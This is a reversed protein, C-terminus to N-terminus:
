VMELKISEIIQSLKENAEKEEVLTEHLLTAAHDEGLTRAYFCLIGYSAIGYHKIKLAASIICADKLIGKKTEDMANEVDKILGEIAKSKVIAIKDDIILFVEELRIQHQKIAELHKNLEDMLEDSRTHKIMKHLPKKIAAESWYIEKLENLFLNRLGKVIDSNHKELNVQGKKRSDNKAPKIAITEM